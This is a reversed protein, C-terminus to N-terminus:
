NIGYRALVKLTQLILYIVLLKAFSMLILFYTGEMFIPFIDMFCIFLFAKNSNSKQFKYLKYLYSLTLGSLILLLGNLNKSILSMGGITGLAVNFENSYGLALSLNNLPNEMKQYYIFTPTAAELIYDNVLPIFKDINYTSDYIGLTKEVGHFRNFFDLISIFSINFTGGEKLVRLGISLPLLLISIPILNFRLKKLDDKKLLFILILVITLLGGKSGTLFPMIGFIIIKSWLELDLQNKNFYEYAICYWIISTLISYLITNNLGSLQFSLLILLSLAGLIKLQKLSNFVYLNVQNVRLKKGFFYGITFLLLLALYYTITTVDYSVSTENYINFLLSISLRFFSLIQWLIIIKFPLTNLKVM